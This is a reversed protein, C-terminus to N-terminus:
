GVRAAAGRAPKGKRLLIKELETLGAKPLDNLNQIVVTNSYIDEVRSTMIGFVVTEVMKEVEKACEHAYNVHSQRDDVSNPYPEGDNLVILLKRKEPRSLLIRAFHKLSEGDYTNAQAHDPMTLVKPGAKFWSDAFTKYSGIWLNGWRTYLAREEATAKRQRATAVEPSGTSWGYVAFPVQMQDFTIGLVGALKSALELREGKMSGSHDVALLAVMDLTEGMVQTQFVRKSTGNVIKYLASRDIKGREKGGEWRVEKRARMLRVLRQRLPSVLKAVEHKFRTFQAPSGAPMPEVTDGETTYILYSDTDTRQQRISDRLQRSISTIADDKDMQETTPNFNRQPKEKGKSDKGGGSSPKGKGEGADDEKGADGAAPDPDGAADEANDVMDVEVVQQTPPANPDAPQPKYGTGSNDGQASAGAPMVIADDPIDSPDIQQREPQPEEQQNLIQMIEEAIPVLETTSTAKLARQFHGVLKTRVVEMIDPEIVKQIFWHDDACGLETYIIGARLVKGLDTLNSWHREGPAALKEMTWEYMEAINRRAGPYRQMWRHNVRPDELANIVKHLKSKNKPDPSASFNSEVCHSAEHDLYGNMVKIFREDAGDPIQPLYIVRGCTEIKDAQFVVKIGYEQTLIRGLRELTTEAIQIRNSRTKAM